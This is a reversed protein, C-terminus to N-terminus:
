SQLECSTHVYFKGYIFWLSVELKRQKIRKRKLYTDCTLTRGGEGSSTFPILRFCHAIRDIEKAFDYITISVYARM